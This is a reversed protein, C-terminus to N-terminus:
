DTCVFKLQTEFGTFDLVRARAFRELSYITWWTRGRIELEEQTFNWSPNHRHIGLEIAVSMTYRTIQWLDNSNNSSHTNLMWISILTVAQLGQFDRPNNGFRTFFHLATHFYEKPNNLDMINPSCEEFQAENSALALVVFCLFKDYDTCDRPAQYIRQFCSRMHQLHLIPWWTHIRAIYVSMFSLATSRSPLAAKSILFEDDHTNRSSDSNSSTDLGIQKFFIRAFTSGAAAGVITM